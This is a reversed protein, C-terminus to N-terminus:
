VLVLLERGAGVAPTARVDPVAGRGPQPLGGCRHDPRGRHPRGCVARDAGDKKFLDATAKMQEILTRILAVTSPALTEVAAELPEVVADRIDRIPQVLTNYLDRLEAYNQYLRYFKDVIEYDPAWFLLDPGVAGLNAIPMNAALEAGANRATSANAGLLVGIADNLVIHHIAYKPM